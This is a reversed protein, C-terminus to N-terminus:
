LQGVVTFILTHTDTGRQTVQKKKQRAVGVKCYPQVSLLTPIKVVKVEKELM